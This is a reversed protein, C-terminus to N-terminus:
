IGMCVLYLQGEALADSALAHGGSTTGALTAMVKGSATDGNDLAADLQKVLSAKIHDSCIIQAGHLEVIPSETANTLGIRGGEGNQAPYNASAPDTAGEALGAMRVHQWFLYSESATTGDNWNGDIIGNGPMCKGSAIPACATAHPLHGAIGVKPDDGPLAGYQQQYAPLDHAVNHFDEELLQARRADVATKARLLGGLLFGFLLLVLAIKVPSTGKQTM